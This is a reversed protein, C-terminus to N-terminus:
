DNFNRGYVEMYSGAGFNQNTGGDVDARALIDTIQNTTDTWVGGVHGATADDLSNTGTVIKKDAAINIIYLVVLIGKNVLTDPWPIIGSQTGASEYTGANLRSYGYNNATDITGANGFRVRMAKTGGNTKGYIVVKLLQKATFTGSSITAAAAGLTAYALKQWIGTRAVFELDTGNAAIRLVYTAADGTALIKALTVANDALKDNTVASDAIDTTGVAGAAINETQVANDALKANTVADAALKATTVSLDDIEATQVSQGVSRRTQRM